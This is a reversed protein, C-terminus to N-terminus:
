GGGSQSPILYMTFFGGVKLVLGFNADYDVADETTPLGKSAWAEFGGRMVYAQRLSGAPYEASNSM